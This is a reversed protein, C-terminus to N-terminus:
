AIHDISGCLQLYIDGKNVLERIFHFHTDIRKRKIHFVDNKSLAIALNNDCFIPIPGNEM